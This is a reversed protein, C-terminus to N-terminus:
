LYTNARIQMNVNYLNIWKSSLNILDNARRDELQAACRRLNSSVEQQTHTGQATNSAQIPAVIKDILPKVSNIVM